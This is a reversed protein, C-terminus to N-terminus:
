VIREPVLPPQLNSLTESNLYQQLRQNRVNVGLGHNKLIKGQGGWGVNLNEDTIDQKLLFFNNSGEYNDFPPEIAAFARGAASLIGSEGVQAGMHCAIGFQRAIAAIQRAAMIGGVKSIRINFASCIKNEALHHADDVTCLSEDALIQEPLVKTLAALEDFRDAPLPQEYSKVGFARMQEAARVAEDYTWACNADVRINVDRGLLNRAVKLRHLDFELDKGVKLKVTKFGYAKYFWLVASLAKSGGFPVVAGYTIADPLPATPRAVLESVTKGVCKGAADLLALELACFSAGQPRSSLRLQNWVEGLGAILEDAGPFQQGLLLPAYQNAVAALAGAPNEGTVYDRPIGEGFGVYTRGNHEITVRVVLNESRDRSALSHKFSFRFPLTILFSDISSIKM